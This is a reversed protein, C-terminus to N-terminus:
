PASRRPKGGPLGPNSSAAPSRSLAFFVREPTIPLHTIRVGIADSIASAV